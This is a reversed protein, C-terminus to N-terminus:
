IPPPTVGELGEEFPLTCTEVCFHPPALPPSARAVVGVVAIVGVSAGICVINHAQVGSWESGM